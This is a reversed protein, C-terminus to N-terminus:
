EAAVDAATYGVTQVSSRVVTTPEKTFTLTSIQVSQMQSTKNQCYTEHEMSLSCFITFQFLLFLVKEIERGSQKQTVQISFTTRKLDPPRLFLPVHAM